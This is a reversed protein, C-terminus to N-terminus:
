ILAMEALAIYQQLNNKDQLFTDSDMKLLKILVVRIRRFAYRRMHKLLQDESVVKYNKRNRGLSSLSTISSIRLVQAENMTKSIEVRVAYGYNILFDIDMLLTPTGTFNFSVRFFIKSRMALDAARYLPKKVDSFNLPTIDVPLSMEDINPFTSLSNVYSDYSILKHEALCQTVSTMMEVVPIFSMDFYNCIHEMVHKNCRINISSPNANCIFTDSRFADYRPTTNVLQNDNEFKILTSLHQQFKRIENAESATIKQM